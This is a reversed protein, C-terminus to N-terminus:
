RKSSGERSQGLPLRLCVRTGRGNVSRIDVCGGLLRAREQMGRLGLSVPNKVKESDFGVGNDSVELLISDDVQSLRVSVQTAKAHRWVNLLAEQFVRHIVVNAAKSLPPDFPLAQVPCSIGSRREFEEACHQIAARLGLDEYPLPRIGVAIARCTSQLHGALELLSAIRHRLPSREPVHEMLLGVEMKLAFIEQGLQDHLERAICSREEDQIEVIRQSLLRLEHESRRLAEEDEKAKTIDMLNGLVAREGHFNVSAVREVAWRVRGDSALYRFVYPSQREGKLMAVASERAAARDEPLIFSTTEMNALEEVPRGVCQAFQENVFVLKGKRSIYVGVPTNDALTQFLEQAQKRESVDRTVGVIGAPAHDDPHLRSLITESWVSDGDKRVLELEVSLSRPASLAAGDERRLYRRLLDRLDSSRPAALFTLAPLGLIEAADYGLLYKVSPSVYTLRGAADVTWIVDTVNEALLRYRAERERLEMEARKRETIDTIVLGIEDGVKFVKQSIRKNQWAPPWAPVFDDVVFPTGTRLVERFQDLRGEVKFGPSVEEIPKGVITEPPIGLGSLDRHTVDVVRLESDLLLFGDSASEMFARLKAKTAGLSAEAQEARQRLEELETVLEAKTKGKKAM